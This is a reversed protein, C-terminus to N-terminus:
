DKRRGMNKDKMEAKLSSTLEELIKEGSHSGTLVAAGPHGGGNLPERRESIEKFLKSLDLGMEILEDSARGTVRFDEEELSNVVLVSDAGGNLLFSAVSSEFAGIKTKAIIFGNVEELKARKAGKLRAIKESYSRSEFLIKKISSISVEAKELIESLTSFTRHDARQLSSSDTFIGSALALGEKESLSDVDFMEYVIEACSTRKELRKEVGEWSNSSHHDIVVTKDLPPKMPVLQEPNPTDLVVLIDYDQYDVDEPTKLQFNLFNLLNKGTSSAETPSVVDGGLRMQFLYASGVADPDAHEHILILINQDKDIKM